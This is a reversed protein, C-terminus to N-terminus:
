SGAKAAKALESLASFVTSNTTRAFPCIIRFFAETM